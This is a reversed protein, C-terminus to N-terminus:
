EEQLWYEKEEVFEILPEYIGCVESWHFVEGIMQKKSEVETYVLKLFDAGSIESKVNEYIDANRLDNESAHQIKTYSIPNKLEIIEEAGNDFWNWFKNNLPTVIEEKNNCILEQENEEMIKIQNKELGTYKAIDSLIEKYNDTIDLKM